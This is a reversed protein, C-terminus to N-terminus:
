LAPAPLAVLVATTAVLLLGLALELTVTRGLRRTGEPTGLAPTVVKWNYRGVLATAALLAIKLGLVRGYSTAALASFTRVYTLALLGGALVATAAGSLAIPSFGRVLRAIDAADGDRAAGLGAVGLWALAGLWVGAGLLHIGHIAVGAGAGWPHELAHGTLPSTFAVAAAAPPLLLSLRRPWMAALGALAYALAAAVLQATWAKGWGTEFVMARVFESTAPEGPDLFSRLQGYLRLGHALLLLTAVLLSLRAVRGRSREALTEPNGAENGRALLRAYTVAGILLLAAGYAAGRGLTYLDLPIPGDDPHM